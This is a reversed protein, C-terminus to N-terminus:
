APDLEPVSAGALVSPRLGRDRGYVGLSRKGAGNMCETKRFSGFAVHWWVALGVKALSVRKTKEAAGSRFCIFYNALIQM